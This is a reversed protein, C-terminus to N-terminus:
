SRALAWGVLWCYVLGLGLLFGVFASPRWFWVGFGLAILLPLKALYAIGALLTGISSRGASGPQGALLSTALHLSWLNLGGGALGIAVGAGVEMGGIPIALLPFACAVALTRKRSLFVRRISPGVRM